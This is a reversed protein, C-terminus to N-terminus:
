KAKFEYVTVTHFTEGAKLVPSPFHTREMSNPFFQTELCLGSRKGFSAGEKGDLTNGDLFNGSYFQVGPLDTYTNMVRGSAEDVLEATLRLGKGDIVWNHDYGGAWLLQPYDQEIREGVAHFDTFDMPTGKVSLIEGTPLSEPDAPTFFSAHLKLKHELVSGSKFGGLNFYAHNTLNCVTDADSVATYDITLRNDDSLSYVVTIKLNGPYREDGDPSFYTLALTGDRIEDQWIVKDYGLFGGHLQNEGENANLAYTKGGLEFRAKSLRNAHRGILAGLYGGMKEYAEVSTYGLVVDEPRGDRDPVWLSQLTGGYTLIGAQAGAANTLTLKYVEQGSATSGFLTKTIVAM